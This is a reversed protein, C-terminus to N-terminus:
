CVLGQLCKPFLSSLLVVHAHWLVVLLAAHASLLATLVLAHWVVTDFARFRRCPDLHECDASDFVIVIVLARVLATVAFSAM